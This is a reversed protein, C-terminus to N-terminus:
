IVKKIGEISALMGQHIGTSFIDPSIETIWTLLCEQESISFIKMTALHHEIPVPTEIASYQLIMEQKDCKLIKETIKGMGKMEFYRCDDNLTIDEITPVWDCRGVDSLITWLENASCNLEIQEKLIKM